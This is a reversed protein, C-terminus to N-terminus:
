KRSSNAPVPMPPEVVPSFDEVAFRKKLATLNEPLFRYNSGAIAAKKDSTIVWQNTDAPSNERLFRRDESDLIAGDKRRFVFVYDFGGTQVGKLREAFDDVPVEPTADAMPSPTENKDELIFRSACGSSSFLVASLVLIVSLRFKLM